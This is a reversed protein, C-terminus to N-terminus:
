VARTRGRISAPHSGLYDGWTRGEGGSKGFWWDVPLASSFLPVRSKAATDTVAINEQPRWTLVENGARVREFDVVQSISQDKKVAGKTMTTTHELSIVGHVVSREGAEDWWCHVSYDHLEKQGGEVSRQVSIRAELEGFPYGDPNARQADKLLGFLKPDGSVVPSSTGDDNAAEIERDVQGSVVLFVIVGTFRKISQYSVPM